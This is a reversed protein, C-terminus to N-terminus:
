DWELAEALAAAPFPRYTRVGVVGVRFGQDRLADAALTSESALSGMSVIAHKADDMRYKWCLGGWRRGFIKEFETDTKNIVELSGM